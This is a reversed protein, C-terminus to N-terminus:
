RLDLVVRRVENQSESDTQSKKKELLLRCVLHRLSQLESTDEESRPTARSLPRAWSCTAAPPSMTPSPPSRRMGSPKPLWSIPLADHLSLPPHAPAAPRHLPFECHYYPPGHLPTCSHSM